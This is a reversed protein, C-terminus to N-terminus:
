EVSEEYKKQVRPCAPQGRGKMDPVIGTYEISSTWAATFSMWDILNSFHREDAPHRDLDL